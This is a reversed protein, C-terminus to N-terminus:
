LITTFIRLPRIAGSVCQVLAVLRTHHFVKFIMGDSIGEPYQFMFSKLSLVQGMILRRIDEEKVALVLIDDLVTELPLMWQVAEKYEIKEFNALSISKEIYFPGCKLRRLHSVYGFCGLLRGLDRGLARVYTGKGCTVCFRTKESTHQQIELTKITILREKLLVDKGCRALDYAREGNIKLASYIPPIQSIKGIFRPLVTEIQERTPRLDSTKLIDGELDDTATECGWTVEFEYIKEGDMVYPILRTAKGLAIPLVGNALPDLTGAHGIKMPHLFRKLAGVVQTSGMGKPKDIILWGNLDNRQKKQM